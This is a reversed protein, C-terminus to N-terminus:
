EATSLTSNLSEEPMRQLIAKPLFYAAPPDPRTTEVTPETGPRAAQHNPRWDKTLADPTQVRLKFGGDVEEFRAPLPETLGKDKILKAVRAATSLKSAPVPRPAEMGSCAGTGAELLIQVCLDAGCAAARLLAARQAAVAATGM